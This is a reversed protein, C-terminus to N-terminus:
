SWPGHCVDYASASMDHFLSAIDTACEIYHVNKKAQGVGWLIVLGCPDDGRDDEVETGFSRFMM